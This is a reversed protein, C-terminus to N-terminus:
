MLLEDPVNQQASSYATAKADNNEGNPTVLIFPHRLMRIVEETISQIM